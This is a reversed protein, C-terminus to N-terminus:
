RESNGGKEKEIIMSLSPFLLCLAKELVRELVNRRILAEALPMKCAVLFPRFMDLM